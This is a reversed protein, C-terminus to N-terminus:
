PMPQQNLKYLFVLEPVVPQKIAIQPPQQPLSPPANGRVFAVFASAADTRLLKGVENLERGLTQVRAQENRIAAELDAPLAGFRARLVRLLSRTQSRVEGEAMWELVQQSQVM